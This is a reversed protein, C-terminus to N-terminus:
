PCGIDAAQQILNDLQREMAAVQQPSLGTTDELVDVTASMANYIGVCVMIWDIMFQIVDGINDLLGGLQAVQPPTSPGSPVGGKLKLVDRKLRLLSRKLEVRRKIHAQIERQTPIRSRSKSAKKNPM